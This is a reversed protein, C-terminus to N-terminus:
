LKINLETERTMQTEYLEPFAKELFAQNEKIRKDILPQWKEDNIMTWEGTKLDLCRAPPPMYKIIEFLQKGFFDVYRKRLASSM